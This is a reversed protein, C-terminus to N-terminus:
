FPIDKDFETDAAPQKEPLKVGHRSAITRIQTPVGHAESVQSNDREAELLRVIQASSLHKSLKSLLRM